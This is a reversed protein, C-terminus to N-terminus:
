APVPVSAQLSPFGQVVSEHLELWPQTWAGAGAPVAHLSPLAQVVPSVQLPDPAHVPPDVWFQSSLLGQVVSAQLEPPPQLWAGAAAPVEQESPFAQVTPSEQLPAPVQRAPVPVKFQLSLLPQM